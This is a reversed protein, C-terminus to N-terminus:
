SSITRLEDRIKSIQDYVGKIYDDMHEPIEGEFEGEEGGTLRILKSDMVAIIANFDDLAKQTIEIGTKLEKEIDNLADLADRLSLAYSKLRQLNQIIEKYKEIKIFLPPYPGEQGSDEMDRGAPQAPRSPALVRRPPAPAPSMSPVPIGGQQKNDEAM